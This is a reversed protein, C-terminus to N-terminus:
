QLEARRFKVPSSSGSVVSKGILMSGSIAVKVFCSQEKDFTIKLSDSELRIGAPKDYVQQGPIDLTAAFYGEGQHIRIVTAEYKEGETDLVWTGAINKQKHGLFLTGTLVLTILIFLKM